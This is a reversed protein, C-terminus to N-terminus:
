GDSALNPSTGHVLNCVDIAAQLIAEATTRIGISQESNKAATKHGFGQHRKNKIQFCLPFLGLMFFLEPFLKLVVAFVIHPTRARQIKRLTQGFLNASFVTGFDIQLAILQVVSAGVFDVVAKTLDQQCLSHALRSNNRFCSGSLMTHGRCGHASQKTQRAGDIHARGINFTLRGINEAHLQQPSLNLCHGATAARQLICHVVSQAVPHRVDGVCEVDDACHCSWM